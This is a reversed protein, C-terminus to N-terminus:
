GTIASTWAQTLVSVQSKHRPCYVNVGNAFMSATVMGLVVGISFKDDITLDTDAELAALNKVQKKGLSAGSKQAQTKVAKAGKKAAANLEACTTKARAIMDSLTAKDTLLANAFGSGVTNVEFRTGATAAISAKVDSIVQSVLKQDKVSQASAVSGLMSWLLASSLLLVLARVSTKVTLM